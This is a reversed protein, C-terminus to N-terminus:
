RGIIYDPKLHHFARSSKFFFFFLKETSCSEKIALIELYHQSLILFCLLLYNYYLFIADLSEGQNQSDWWILRFFGFFYPLPM